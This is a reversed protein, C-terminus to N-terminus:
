FLNLQNDVLRIDSRHASFTFAQKQQIKEFPMVSLIQLMTYLQADIGLRKRIIAVLVYISVAIWIQAKVANESTGYFRLPLIRAPLGYSSRLPEGAM